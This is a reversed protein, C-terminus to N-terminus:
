LNLALSSQMDVSRAIARKRKRYVGLPGDMSHRLRYVFLHTEGTQGQRYARQIAQEIECDTWGMCPLFVNSYMSLNLGTAGVKIQLLLFRPANKVLAKRMKSSVSGEIVGVDKKDVNLRDLMALLQDRQDIFRFFILNRGGSVMVQRLDAELAAHKASTADGSYLAELASDVEQVTAAGNANPETETIIAYDEIATEADFRHSNLRRKVSRVAMGAGEAVQLGFIGSASARSSSCLGLAAACAFERSDRPCRKLFGTLLTTQLLAESPHPDLMRTHVRLPPLPPLVNRTRRLVKVAMSENSETNGGVLKILAVYDARVNVVPTATVAFKKGHMSDAITLMKSGITLNIHAEDFVITDWIRERLSYNNRLQGYTCITVDSDTGASASPVSLHISLNAHAENEDVWQERVTLPLVILSSRNNTKRRARVSLFALVMSTKGLGPEDAILGTKQHCMWHVGERQHPHLRRDSGADLADLHRDIKRRKSDLNPAPM